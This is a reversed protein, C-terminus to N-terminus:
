EADINYRVRRADSALPRLSRDCVDLVSTCVSSVASIIYFMNITENFEFLQLLKVTNM